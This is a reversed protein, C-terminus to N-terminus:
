YGQFGHLLYVELHRSTLSDLRVTLSALHQARSFHGTLEADPASERILLADSGIHRNMDTSLKFHDSAQRGPNWSILRPQRGRLEYAMHALLTRNDALLIADPYALLYPHLKHALEDWGTARVFPNYRAPNAVDSAALWAPAHYAAASLLVNIAVGAIMWGRRRGDLLCGALVIVTPAFAPAAWNANAGGTAAQVAVVAWLPLVFCGVLSAAPCRALRRWRLAGVVAVSGLLPGFSLWQAAVFEGLAGWRNGAQRQLTIEATHRLTPFDHAINWGINPALMLGGLLLALWPGATALRIRHFIALHLFLSGIFVAMTYKSLLGLGFVVGLALWDAWRNDDIARLYLWLGALWFVALLADTSVFLGLWAYIPLTLVLLASWGAVSCDYLRRAVLWSLLALLPYCLMALAKVGLLSDGFLATSLRILAAIGPPKSFYGWELHQAWAWYQAEDVYLSAGSLLVAWARWALILVALLLLAPVGANLRLPEVLALPPVTGSLPMERM